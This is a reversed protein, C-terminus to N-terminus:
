TQKFKWKYGGASKRQNNCVMRITNRNILLYESVEKLSKWEKLLIGDQSYQLVSKYKSEICNISQKKGFMPNNRGKRKESLSKRGADSLKRKKASESMLKLTEPQFTRNKLKLSIKKNIEEGFNGGDGGMTLNTLLCGNNKYDAVWKKEAEGWESKDVEDIIELIPSKGMKKLHNIWNNKYNVNYKSKRIHEYLRETPKDSKGVYRVEFSIPDKLVYIFTKLNNTEM